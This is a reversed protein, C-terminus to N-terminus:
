LSNKSNKIIAIKLMQLAKVSARQIVKARPPSYYCEEVYVGTPSAIAIYVKGVEKDTDDKSPGANGTVGIAYDAGFKEQMGKAMEIAVAESVVSDKDITAKSVKLFNVKTAVNYSVIGGLFYCSAGPIATIMKSINGGTCSEAVALSSNEKALLNGVVTELNEGEDFGVIIDSILETLKSVEKDLAKELAVREAGRASLRLRLQGYNPLYALKINYALASEWAEIREAVMSEGMGYTLITKHIIHPLEFSEKIKPLVEELMLGKMENPVGPLSIVVKGNRKFWMGSATGINNKLITAKVPLLAQQRNLESFQLGYKDFLAKIHAEVEPYIKLESNFYSAITHKTIDDKTPGLGGTLIIINARDEADDLAKLIHSKKDQISTIQYVDVGIKNLETAIWQSNTDTIQGILIEDGITIIEANM